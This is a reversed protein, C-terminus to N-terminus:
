ASLGEGGVVHSTFRSMKARSGVEIYASFLRGKYPERNHVGQLLGKFLLKKPGRCSEDGGRPFAMLPVPIIDYNLMVCHM